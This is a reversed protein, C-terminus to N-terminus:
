SHPPRNHIYFFQDHSLWWRGDGRDQQILEAGFRIVPFPGYFAERFENLAQILDFRNVTPM